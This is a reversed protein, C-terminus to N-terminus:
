QRSLKVARRRETRPNLLDNLGDGLLNWGVGFLILALTVPLYVWWSPSTPGFIGLGFLSNGGAIASERDFFV